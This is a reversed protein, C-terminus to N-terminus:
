CDYHKRKVYKAGFVFIEMSFTENFCGFLNRLVTFLHNLRSCEMFAHFVTERKFCFPCESSVEPNLVSVFANVAITGHLVRGQIDGVRKVLPPKYFVRWEPKVDDDVKLFSRWPTDIKNNLLKKNFVLVCAKYLLKGTASFFDLCLTKGAKLFCGTCDDLKPSLFIAPFSDEVNPAKERKCFDALSKREEILLASQWKMLLQGVKRTSVIGLHSAVQETNMFNPGAVKVLHSLTTTKSKCLLHNLGPFNNDDVSIDLRAGHIIPKNLLWFLSNTKPTKQHNFLSWVRFLNRYFIPVNAFDLKLPDMMFLAKDLQLSGLRRLIACATARWSFDTPGLLLRQIFQLRFAATRSQLNVLGQGGEEKSLFLISQTVWHLKDWCFNVLLAQVAALLKPPPDIYALKHWLSSAVLNNIILIRGRYSMNPALWTWKALCGKLTEVVGDWNKQVTIGNGLFVGLYKFGETNWRLGRPFRLRVSTWKRCSLAESKNWNVKASSLVKFDELLQLLTEIDNQNNVMVIVDDAYASLHVNCNFGPIQVGNLKIKIQQLLPEIAISYLM